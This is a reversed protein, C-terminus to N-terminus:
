LIHEGAISHTRKSPSCAGQVCLCFLKQLGCIYCLHYIISKDTIQMGHTDHIHCMMYKDTVEVAEAFWSCSVYSVPYISRHYVICAHAHTHNERMCVYINM